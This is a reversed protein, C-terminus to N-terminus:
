SPWYLLLVKSHILISMDLDWGLNMSTTDRAIPDLTNKIVKELIYTLISFVFDLM